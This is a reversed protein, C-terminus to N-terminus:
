GIRNKTPAPHAVRRRTSRSPQDRPDPTSAATEPTGRIGGPENEPRRALYAKLESVPVRKSKGVLVFPIEGDAILQYGQSRSVGIAEAAEWVRLAIREVIREM